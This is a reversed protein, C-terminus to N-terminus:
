EEDSGQKNNKEAKMSKDDKEQDDNEEEFELAWKVPGKLRRGMNLIGAPKKIKEEREKTILAKMEEKGKALNLFMQQFQANQAQLEKVTQELAM